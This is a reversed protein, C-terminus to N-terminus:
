NRPITLYSDDGYPRGTWTVPETTQTLRYVLTLTVRRAGRTKAAARITHRTARGITLKLRQRDANAHGTITPLRAVTKGKIKFYGKATYDYERGSDVECLDLNETAPVTPLLRPDKGLDLTFPPGLGCDARAPQTAPSVALAPLTALALVVSARRTRTAASTM